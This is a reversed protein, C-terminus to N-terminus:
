PPSLFFFFDPQTPLPCQPYTILYVYSDHYCDARVGQLFSALLTVVIIRSSSLMSTRCGVSCPSFGACHLHETLLDLSTLLLCM